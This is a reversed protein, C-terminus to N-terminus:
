IQVRQRCHCFGPCFRDAVEDATLCPRAPRVPVRPLYMRTRVLLHKMVTPSGMSASLMIPTYGYFDTADLEAGAAILEPVTDVVAARGSPWIAAFHLLTKGDGSIHKVETDADTAGAIVNKIGEADNRRVADMLKDITGTKAQVDDLKEQTRSVADALDANQSMAVSTLMAALFAAGLLSRM